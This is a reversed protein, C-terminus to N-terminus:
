ARRQSTRATTGKLRSRRSTTARGTRLSLVPQAGFNYNEQVYSAAIQYGVMLSGLMKHTGNGLVNGTADVSWTSNALTAAGTWFDGAGSLGAQIIPTNTLTTYFRLGTKWASTTYAQETVAAVAAAIDSQQGFADLTGKFGFYGLQQSNGVAAVPDRLLNISPNIDAFLTLRDALATIEQAYTAALNLYNLNRLNSANTSHSAMMMAWARHGKDNPHLADDSFDLFDSARISGVAENGDIWIVDNATCVNRLAERYTTPWSAPVYTCDEEFIYRIAPTWTGYQARIKTILNTLNTATAPASLNGGSPSADNVGCLITIVHPQQNAIFQHFGLAVVADAFTGLSIGSKSARILM